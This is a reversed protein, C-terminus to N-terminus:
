VDDFNGEAEMVRDIFDKERLKIGIYTRARNIFRQEFKKKMNRGFMQNSMQYEKNEKIYKSIDQFLDRSTATFEPGVECNDVIWRAVVDMDSRYDKVQLQIVPPEQLGKKFYEQAGQIAWWLIQPLEKDLKEGLLKDQEDDPIIINHPIIKIRRWIGHDTGRIIPRYNTAMVLKYQPKYTFENGYLFRATIEGYDSTMNKITAEKLRDNLETEEVMVFRAGILAALKQETNNNFTKDVLLDSSTTTGYDGTVKLLTELLLSKGNSGDGLFIYLSQESKYGTLWYGTLRQIYGVLDPNDAYTENLFKIWLKPPKKDVPIDIFKSLKRLKDHPKIDGTRLNVIGSRTNIIDEETDFMNNTVPIGPAHEAEKLMAEKGYTNSIRNINNFMKKRIEGPQQNIAENRMQEIVIEAFIKIQNFKDFQWHQGNWMMWQKNEVNYFVSNLYNDVFVKANGSDNFNLNEDISMKVDHYHTIAKQLTDMRYDDRAWKKIHVDDKQMYYPSQKFAADMAAYNGELVRALHNALSLDDESETGDSGTPTRTWVHKFVLNNRVEREIREDIDDIVAEAGQIGTVVADFTRANKKRMYEELIYTIDKEKIGENLYVNGTLTVYKNTNDSIYIELGNNRNNIYHTATEIKNNTKFIIRIGTGSPSIETYSNVYKIIDHALKSIKGRSDICDDIDIASFGNFVGMGLGGTIEGDANVAYYRPLHKLITQYNNFTNPNNSRAMTGNVPNYPTKGKDTLRWTCFLGNNKLEQPINSIDM